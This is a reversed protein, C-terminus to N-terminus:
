VCSLVCVCASVSPSNGMEILEMLLRIYSAHELSVGSSPIPLPTVAYISFLQLMIAQITLLQPGVWPGSRDSGLHGSERTKSPLDTM